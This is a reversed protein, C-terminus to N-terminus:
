DCRTYVEDADGRLRLRGAILGDDCGRQNKRMTVVSFVALFM